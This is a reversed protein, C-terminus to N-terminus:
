VFVYGISVSTFMSTHKFDDCYDTKRQCVKSTGTYLKETRLKLYPGPNTSSVFMLTM